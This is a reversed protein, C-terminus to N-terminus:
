APQQGTIDMCVQTLLVRSPDVSTEEQLERAAAAELPEGEDVFGGPLAWAGAFPDHKRQTNTTPPIWSTAHTNAHPPPLCDHLPLCGLSPQCSGTPPCIPQNIPRIPASPQISEDLGVLIRKLLQM